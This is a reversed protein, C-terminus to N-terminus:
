NKNIKIIITVVWTGFLVIMANINDASINILCRLAKCHPMASAHPSMLFGSITFPECFYIYLRPTVYDLVTWRLFVGVVPLGTKIFDSIVDRSSIVDIM